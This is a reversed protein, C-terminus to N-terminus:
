AFFTRGSRREDDNTTRKEDNTTTRRREKKTTRRRENTTRKEDDGNNDSDDTSTKGKSMAAIFRHDFQLLRHLSAHAHVFAYSCHSKNNIDERLANKPSAFHMCLAPRLAFTHLDDLM